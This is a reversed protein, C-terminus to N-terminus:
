AGFFATRNRKKSTNYTGTKFQPHQIFLIYFSRYACRALISLLTPGDAYHQPSQRSLEDHTNCLRREKHEHHFLHTSFWLWLIYLCAFIATFHPRQLHTAPDAINAIIRFTFPRHVFLVASQVARPGNLTQRQWCLATINQGMNMCVDCVCRTVGDDEPSHYLCAQVGRQLQASWLLGGMATVALRIVWQCRNSGSELIRSHRQIQYLM